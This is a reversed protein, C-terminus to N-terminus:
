IFITKKISMLKSFLLIQILKILFSLITNIFIIERIGEKQIDKTPIAEKIKLTLEKLHISM